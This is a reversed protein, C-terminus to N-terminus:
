KARLKKFSVALSFLGSLIAIIVAIGQLAPMWATFFSATATSACVFWGCAAQTEPTM